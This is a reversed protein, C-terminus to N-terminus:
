DMGIIRKVEALNADAIARAKRTGEACVLALYGPDTMLQDYMHRKPSFEDVILQTVMDKLQKHNFAAVEAAAEDITQNQLGAVIAILNSVGPRAEPDYYVEQILDTVSKRVKKAISDPDETVYVCLLEDPDSKSMKKTPKRLSRIKQSPSLLTTPLVFHNTDYQHNFTTAVQRTLELHQLQDDGVPVHTANYVLVDAAMLVPYTFLGAKTHELASDSAISADELQQAKLKWQTMRNLSGMGTLCMLVWSLEVHAPVLLQHFITCHQPDLGLAILSAVAEQRHQRLQNPEQPMTIAHLDAIGYIYESGPSGLDAINKWSKIAGLYNGLHIRGTPQLLSFIRSGPPVRPVVELQQVTRRLLPTPRM